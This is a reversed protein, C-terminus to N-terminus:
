EILGLKNKLKQALTLWQVLSLDEARIEPDINWEILQEATLSLNNRLKKRKHKFGNKIITFFFKDPISHQVLQTRSINAVHVISSAVKPPPSFAGPQVHSIIKPTGYVGVSLSLISTKGDREVIREAVERQILFALETPQHHHSLITRFLLGTIYYPINGVVAYESDIGWAVPDFNVADASIITLQKTKIEAAFTKTLQAVLDVDKEVAIIRDHRELLARTLVGTGPGIEVVPITREVTLSEALSAVVQPSTLFHQGLHKKARIM